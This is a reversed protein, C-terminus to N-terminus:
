HMRIHEPASLEFSMVITSHVVSALLDWCFRKSGNKLVYSDCNGVGVMFVKRIFLVQEPTPDEIMLFFFICLGFDYLSFVNNKCFNQLKVFSSVGYQFLHLFTFIYSFKLVSHHSLIALSM